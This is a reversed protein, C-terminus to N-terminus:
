DKEGPGLSSIRGGSVEVTLNAMEGLSGLLKWWRNFIRECCVCFSICQFVCSKYPAIRLCKLIENYRPDSLRLSAVKIKLCHTVSMKQM